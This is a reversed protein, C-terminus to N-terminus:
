IMHCRSIPASEFTCRASLALDSGTESIRVGGVANIFVDQDGTVIGSHRNLVALLM